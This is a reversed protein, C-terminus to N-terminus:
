DGIRFDTTPDLHAHIEKTKEIHPKIHPLWVFHRGAVFGAAGAIVSATLNGPVGNIWLWHYANFWADHIMEEVLRSTRAPGVM